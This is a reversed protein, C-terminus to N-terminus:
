YGETVGVTSYSAWYSIAVTATTSGLMHLMNSLPYPIDIKVLSISLGILISLILPNKSLRKGVIRLGKRWGSSELRHFELFAISISVSVISISAAALTALNEAISPFAFMLFPIGYFATSGFVTTLVLLYFFDRSFRLLLYLVTYLALVILIPTVGALMFKVHELTFKTEALDVIFLSPLAFYYIYANLVREDGAKLLGIRRSLYGLGILLLIPVTTRLAIEYVM